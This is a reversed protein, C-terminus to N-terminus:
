ENVPLMETQNELQKRRVEILQDFLILELPQAGLKDFDEHRLEQICQCYQLICAENV